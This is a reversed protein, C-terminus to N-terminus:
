DSFLGPEEKQLKEKEAYLKEYEQNLKDIVNVGHPEDNYFDILQPEM